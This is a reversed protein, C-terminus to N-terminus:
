MGPYQAPSGTVAARMRDYDEAAWWQCLQVASIVTVGLDGLSKVFEPRRYAVPPRAAPTQRHNHNLVLVGAELVEPRGLKPWTRLHKVVDFISSESPSGVAARAEVLWCHRDITALLDSSRGSGFTEDLDEIE